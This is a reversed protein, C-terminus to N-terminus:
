CPKKLELRDEWKERGILEAFHDRYSEVANKYTRNLRILEIFVAKYCKLMEKFSRRVHLCMGDSDVYIIEKRRYIERENGYPRLVTIDPSKAPLFAGNFTLLYKMMDKSSIRIESTDDELQFDKKQLGHYGYFENIAKLKYNYARLEGHLEEGDTKLLWEAGKSFDRVGRMNMRVYQYRCRFVNGLVWKVIRYNLQGRGLGPYHIANIIAFNRVDYYEASGPLKNIYPEHWIGIGNLTIFKRDMRLGYEVDDRHIFLPLPLGIKKIVSVPICSYWWGCYEIPDAEEENWLLSESKRLDIQNKLIKVNGQNWQAGSEFQIYPFKQNLLAGAITHDSFEPKLLSLFQWTRELVYPQTIADDDMLLIHTAGFEENQMSEMIGRTFGGVGGLNKNKRIQIQPINELELTKGNDSVFVRLKGYLVSQSNQFIQEKIANLTRLVDKERKYTCIVAAMRIEERRKEIDASFDFGMFETQLQMAELELYLMGTELLEIECPLEASEGSGTWESEWLIKKRNEKSLACVRVNCTGKIKVHIRVHDVVTYKKWKGASLSNFYTNLRCFNGKNLLLLPSEGSRQIEGDTFLYLSEEDDAEPWIM